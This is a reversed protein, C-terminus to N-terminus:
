FSSVPPGPGTVAPIEVDDYGEEPEIYLDADPEDYSSSRKEPRRDRNVSSYADGPQTPGDQSVGPFTDDLPLNRPPLPPVYEPTENRFNEYMREEKKPKQKLSKPIPWSEGRALQKKCICYMLLGITLSVVVIAVAMLLWFNERWWSM